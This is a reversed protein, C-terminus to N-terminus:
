QSLGCFRRDNFSDSLSIPARRAVASWPAEASPSPSHGGVMVAVRGVVVGMLAVPVIGV